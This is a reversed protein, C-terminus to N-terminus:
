RKTKGFSMALMNKTGKWWWMGSGSIKDQVFNWKNERWNFLFSVSQVTVNTLQFFLCFSSLRTWPPLRYCWESMSQPRREDTVGTTAVNRVEQIVRYINVRQYSKQKNTGECFDWSSSAWPSDRCNVNKRAYYFKVFVAFQNLRWVQGTVM